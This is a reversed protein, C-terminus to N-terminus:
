VGLIKLGIFSLLFIIFMLILEGQLWLGIKKQMRGALQMIYPLYKDPVVSPLIRKMANEEVLMYFTIVLVVFFSVVGGFFTSITSIVNGAAKNLSNELSRLGEQIGRPLQGASEDAQWGSVGEMVREWFVPFSSSLERIQEAIPPVLLFVALSLVIFVIAYISLIGVVRPIRWKKQLADVWTHFASALILAAFLIFIVDRLVYALWFGVFILVVRVLTWTSININQINKARDLLPM